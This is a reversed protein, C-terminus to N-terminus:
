GAKLLEATYIPTAIHSYKGWRLRLGKWLKGKGSMRLTTKVHAVEGGREGGEEDYGKDSRLRDLCNSSPTTAITVAILATADGAIARAVRKISTM